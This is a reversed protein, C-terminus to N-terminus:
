ATRREGYEARLIDKARAATDDSASTVAGFWSPPWEEAEPEGALGRVLAVAASVRDEPLGEVLHHLEDRMATM